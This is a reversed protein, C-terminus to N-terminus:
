KWFEYWKPKQYLLYQYKDMNERLNIFNILFFFFPYVQFVTDVIHNVSAIHRILVLINVPYPIIRKNVPIQLRLFIEKGM